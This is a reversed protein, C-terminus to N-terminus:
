IRRFDTLITNLSAPFSLISRTDTIRRPLPGSSKVYPLGDEDSEEEEDGVGGDEM